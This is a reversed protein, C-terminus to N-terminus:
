VGSGLIAARSLTTEYINRVRRTYDAAPVFEQPIPYVIQVDDLAARFIGVAVAQMKSGTPAVVIRDFMSREGYIAGLLRLTERYDMTSVEHEKIGALDGLVLRNLWAVGETRWANERRPPAGHIADTYTPQVEQVVHLLQAPDFSPFAVLRVPSGMMAVSSLEETAAIEFIGSSLYGGISSEQQGARRRDFEDRGPLYEDAESYLVRVTRGLTRVAGVLVQVILLRSMGSVDVLVRDFDAIFTRIRRGGEGPERRDYTIETVTANVDQAMARMEDSRNEENHPLYSVLGVNLQKERGECVRELVEVARDEFGGCVLLCDEHGVEPVVVTRPEPWSFAMLREDDRM